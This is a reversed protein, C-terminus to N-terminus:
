NQPASKAAKPQSTQPSRKARMKEMKRLRMETKIKKARLPWNPHM